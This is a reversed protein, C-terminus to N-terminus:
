IEVVVKGQTHGQGVYRLAERADSLPYRREVVSKLKGAEVLEALACLDERNPKSLFFSVTQSGGLAALRIAALHAVPGLVRNGQPAGAQVVIADRSLVRKYERWSRSGAVDFLVDYRDGGRTFDERTYDVVRDAGLSRVLEVNRTSCVGTVEAGLAKAVQVAFTGVGGSAGNVLVKQGPHVQAKDRLGQLATLGAVPLAAAEEFTANAPMKAVANKVTVYEALAGTRIGFVRDGVAFDSMEKGVAEVTGAFDVGLTRQKPKRFGGQMRTFVPWGTLTYWDLRNLSTARVRVLVSDDPTEPTEVEELRVASADGYADRVLARM